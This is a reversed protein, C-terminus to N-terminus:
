GDPVVRGSARAPEGVYGPSVMPGRVEIRREVTRIEAGPIAVVKGDSPRATAVQSATETMGYTPLAPLGASRAREVLDFPVPGGGVLVAKVGSYRDPHADLVRALTTTVMSGLTADGARLLAAARTADFSPQLLVTTAERVSRVLISAGGVHYIPIDCLWREDSGHELHASSGAASAELNGFTLRVGKPRGTSGSTFVIWALRAPDVEGRTELAPGDHTEIEVTPVGLDPADHGVVLHAGVESLQAAAETPTLRTNVIQVAAGARWTAFMSVVSRLDNRAWLGVVTDPSVGLSRLRTATAATRAAVEEFTHVGADDVIFPHEPRNSAAAKLWDRM